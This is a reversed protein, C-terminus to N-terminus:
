GSRLRQSSTMKEEFRQDFWADLDEAPMEIVAATNSM